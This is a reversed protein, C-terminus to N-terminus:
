AASSICMLEENPTHWHWPVTCGSAIKALITSPGQAPDGSLVANLGCEPLGPFTVFKMEALNRGVAHDDALIPTGFTLLSLAGAMAVKAVVGM